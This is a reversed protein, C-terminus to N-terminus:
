AHEAVMFPAVQLCFPQCRLLSPRSLKTMVEAPTRVNACKLDFVNLQNAANARPRAEACTEPHDLM